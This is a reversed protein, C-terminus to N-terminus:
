AFIQRLEEDIDVDFEDHSASKGILEDLDLDGPGIDPLNQMFDELYNLVMAKEPIPIYHCLTDNDCFPSLNSCSAVHYVITNATFENECSICKCSNDGIKTYLSSKDMHIRVYHTKMAKTKKFTLSCDPHVCPLPTDSHHSVIHHSLQAQTPFTQPCIQCSSQPQVVPIVQDAATKNKCFPSLPSCGSVHYMIANLTFLNGCSICVCTKDPRKRYLLNAKLHCRVFHTKQTTSNKFKLTCLPDACELSAESHKNVVHHGLQTQTPFSAPCENCFHNHQNRHLRTVHMSLTNANRTYYPCHQCYRRSGHMEQRM